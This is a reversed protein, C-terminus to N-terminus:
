FDYNPMKIEQLEGNKCRRFDIDCLPEEGEKEEIRNNNQKYGVYIGGKDQEKSLWGTIFRLVGNKTKRRKPNADLWGRMNRLQQQIDVSPYLLAWEDIQKQYIPYESKDNLTLTIVPPVTCVQNQETCYLVNVNDNDNVNVNDNDNVNDNLNKNPKGKTKTLNKQTKIPNQELLDTQNKKPRGGKKGNEVCSNYKKTAIDIQTKFTIFLALELGTIDPEKNEFVYEFIARYLILQNEEPIIKIAEYFSRYFVFSEREM